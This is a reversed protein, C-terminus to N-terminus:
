CSYLPKNVVSKPAKLPTWYALTNKGLLVKKGLPINAPLALFRGWLSVGSLHKMWTPEPMAGLYSLFAGSGVLLFYVQSSLGALTLSDLKNSGKM